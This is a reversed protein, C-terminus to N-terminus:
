RKSILCWNLTKKTFQKKEESKADILYVRLYATLFNENINIHRRTQSLSGFYQRNSYQGGQVTSHIMQGKLTTENIHWM